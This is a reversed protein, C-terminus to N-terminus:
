EPNPGHAQEDSGGGAHRARDRAVIQGARRWHTLLRKPGRLSRNSRRQTPASDSIGSRWRHLRCAVDRVPQQTHQTFRADLPARLRPVTIARASRTLWVSSTCRRAARAGPHRTKCRMVENRLPSPPPPAVRTKLLGEGGQDRKCTPHTPLDEAAVDVAVGVGGVAQVGLQVLSHGAVAAARTSHVDLRKDRGRSRERTNQRDGAQRTGGARRGQQRRWQACRTTVRSRGLGADSDDSGLMGRRQRGRV